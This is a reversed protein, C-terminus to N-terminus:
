GAEPTIILEEHGLAGEVEGGSGDEQDDGDEVGKAEEEL